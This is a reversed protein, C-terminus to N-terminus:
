KDGNPTRRQRDKASINLLAVYPQQPVTRRERQSHMYIRQRTHLLALALRRLQLVDQTEWATPNNEAIFPPIGAISPLDLYSDNRPILRLNLHSNIHM